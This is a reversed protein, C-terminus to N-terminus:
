QLPYGQLALGGYFNQYGYGGSGSYSWSTKGESTNVYVAKPTFGLSITRETTGNGTYTGTTIKLNSQINVVEYSSGNKYKPAM